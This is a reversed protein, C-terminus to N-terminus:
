VQVHSHAVLYPLQSSFGPGWCLADSQQALDRPGLLKLSLCQVDELLIHAYPGVPGELDKESVPSFGEAELHWAAMTALSPLPLHSSHPSCLHLTFKSLLENLSTAKRPSMDSIRGQAIQLCLSPFLPSCHIVVYAPELAWLLLLCWYQGASVSGHALYTRPSLPSDPNQEVAGGV